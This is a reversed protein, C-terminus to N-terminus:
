DDAKWLLRAGVAGGLLVLCVATNLAMGVQAPGNRWQYYSAIGALHGLMAAGSISLVIVSSVAWYARIWRNM